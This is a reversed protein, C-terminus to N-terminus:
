EDSPGGDCHSDYTHHGDADSSHSIYYNEADWSTLWVIIWNRFREIWTM